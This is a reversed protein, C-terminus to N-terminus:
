AGRAVSFGWTYVAPEFSTAVHVYASQRLRAAGPNVDTRILSWGAPSTIAPAQVVDVVALLVDGAITGAPVALVISSTAANHASTQGRFAIGAATAASSSCLLCATLFVVALAFRSGLVRLM